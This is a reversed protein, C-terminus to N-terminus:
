RTCINLVPEGYKQLKTRGIGPIRLLEREDTPRLEAIATLTADTFIVFAPMREEEAKEARWEFLADYLKQDMTSPCDECRGLKRAGADLLGRGCVRCKPIPKETRERGTRASPQWDSAPRSSGRVGLTDLFRTPGRQGRGGPSRSTSWSIALQDKARTVGVYFLRREEEVQAPTQAYSIPLTGEHAGVIFVCGWELGKATHLTALTVGEALPAHQIAARRDLETMLEALGAEPHAAAYDSTMTVLASLSEWRDRVAGKGKPPEPTWGAGALVGRVVEALDGGPEGAKAQGRLLMAAQRIEPREFFREAGKLVAPISREALAQEFNESQANTRFLIAIDRLATGSDRLKAIARAVADAEAVEDPYERYTPTPGADRQSRLTVRGPLGAPGTSDLIKNAVDVIQPTSRYDRVLKIVTADDHRSAFRVLNEPDAGAWSYITQAPDGVVCVDGRGGLWLDLLSQQLPSVDQYEDVVFTRYQRRIEAAVREDEALLAVACLLVDELDIRGRELKVDEYAAFIRAITAPDFAALTRGSTPALKAYDDPRVNSVKAWEVEGALDRLGPTDVRVRCRSAAETLLPFKRDAIPPLESKYVKPWFWRAQRLAASHFTRAQVGDAGLQALRGRMEGAARQTFTVALVRAPDYTGTRVGYAIRHTIARTKGTGAGAMVVVPGHLATAVARQEPDLAELLADASRAAVVQTIDSVPQSM